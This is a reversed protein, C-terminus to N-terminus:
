SRPVRSIQPLIEEGHDDHFKAEPSTKDKQTSSNGPVRPFARKESSEFSDKIWEYKVGM